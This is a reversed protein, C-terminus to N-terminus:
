FLFLRRHREEMDLGRADHLIYNGCLIRTQVEEIIDIEGNVDYSYIFERSLNRESSIIWYKKEQPDDKVTVYRREVLFQVAKQNGIKLYCQFPATHRDYTKHEIVHRKRAFLSEFITAEEGNSTPINISRVLEEFTDYIIPVRRITNPPSDKHYSKIKVEYCIYMVYGDDIHCIAFKDVFRAYQLEQLNYVKKPVLEDEDRDKHEDQDTDDDEYNQNRLSDLTLKGIIHAGNETEYSM